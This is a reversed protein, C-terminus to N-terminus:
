TAAGEMPTSDAPPLPFYLSFTSGKGPASEAGVAGKWARMYGRVDSLGAGRQPYATSPMFPEFARVLLNEPIGPGADTVSLQIYGSPPPLWDLPLLYSAAENFDTAAKVALTMAVSGFLQAEHANKLLIHLIRQLAQPDAQVPIVAGPPIALQVDPPDEVAETYRQVTQRCAAALDVRETAPPVEGLATLTSVGVETARATTEKASQIRRAAPSDAPMGAELMELAGLLVGLQNNFVHSISGALQEWGAVQQQRQKRKQKLAQLQIQELNNRETMDLLVVAQKDGMPTVHFEVPRRSGDRCPVMAERGAAEAALDRTEKESWDYEQLFVKNRYLFAGNADLMMAGMPLVSIFGEFVDNVTSLQRGLVAQTIYAGLGQAVVQLLNEERATWQRVTSVADLGVWGWFVGDAHIPCVLVHRIDQAVLLRHVNGSFDEVRGSIVNGQELAVHWDKVTSLYIEQLMPNDIQPTIDPACWEYIQSCLMDRGQADLHNLFVYVRDAHANEGLSALHAPILVEAPSRALLARLDALMFSTLGARQILELMPATSIFESSEPKNVIQTGIIWM